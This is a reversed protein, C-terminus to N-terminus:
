PESINIVTHESSACLYMASDQLEMSHIELSCASNQPCEASFREKPMETELVIKYQFSVLFKFEKKLIQQYWFVYDHGKKPVCYMKVNQGKGEILHGPTQTVEAVFSGAGLLGMSCIVMTRMASHPCSCDPTKRKPKRM